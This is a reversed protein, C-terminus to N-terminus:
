IEVESDDYLETPGLIEELGALLIDDDSIAKDTTAQSQGEREEPVFQLGSKAKELLEALENSIDKLRDIEKAMVQQHYYFKIAARVFASENIGQKAIDAMIAQTEEDHRASINKRSTGAM